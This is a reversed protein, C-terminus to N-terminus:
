DRASVVGPRLAEPDHGPIVTAGADRLDRLREASRRQADHDDAFPPFRHDDLGSAFHTVDAGIVLDGVRVSQHGRTHGPTSLLEVSGDGLLDTDGDLLVVEREAAYDRPQLHNAAIVDADHGGEWERRQVVLPVSSPVLDLGGVHDWHLHTAVVRTLAALDVQEAISREQELRFAAFIEPRGYYAGPDEIAGPALGTDVLIREEGTEILYAPVPYRVTRDMPEGARFLGAPSTFWGVIFREVRVDM